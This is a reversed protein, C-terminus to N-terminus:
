RKLLSHFAHTLVYIFSVLYSKKFVKNFMLFMDQSKKIKSSSVSSPVRRYHALPKDIYAIESNFNVLKLWFGYDQGRKVKPMYLIPYDAKRYMVTLCGIPCRFFLGKPTISRHKKLALKLIQGYEDMVYYNAYSFSVNNNEM